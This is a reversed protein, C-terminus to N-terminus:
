FVGADEYSVKLNCNRICINMEKEFCSLEACKFVQKRKEYRGPYM